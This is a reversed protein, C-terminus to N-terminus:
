VFRNVAAVIDSEGFPKIMVGLPGQALVRAMMDSDPYGTIIIIPLNPKVAKLRHFLEAGSMGVLKLDLFVLDFELKEVFELGEAANKATLLSHGLEELTEKFLTLVIDEDDIVLIKKAM